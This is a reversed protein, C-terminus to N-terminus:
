LGEGRSISLNIKPHSLELSFISSLSFLDKFKSNNLHLIAHLKWYVTSLSTIGGIGSPHLPSPRPRKSVTEHLGLQDSKGSSM